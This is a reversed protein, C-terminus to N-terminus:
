LTKHNKFIVNELARFRKNRKGYDIRYVSATASQQFQSRQFNKKCLSNMHLHALKIKDWATNYKPTHTKHTKYKCKTAVKQHLLYFHIIIAAQVAIELETGCKRTEYKWDVWESLQEMAGTERATNIGAARRVTKPGLQASWRGCVRVYSRSKTIKEGPVSCGRGHHAQKRTTLGM